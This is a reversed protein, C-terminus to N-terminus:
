RIEGRAHRTASLWLVNGLVRALDAPLPHRAQPNRRLVATPAGTEGSLVLAGSLRQYRRLFVRVGTFGRQQFM